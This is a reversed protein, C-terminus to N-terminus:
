RGVCRSGAAIMRRGKGARLVAGRGRGPAQPWAPAHAPRHKVLAGLRQHDGGPRGAVAHPRGPVTVRGPHVRPAPLFWAMFVALTDVKSFVAPSVPQTCSSRPASPWTAAPVGPAAGPTAPPTAAPAPRDPACGPAPTPARRPPTWGRARRRPGPERGGPHVLEHGGGIHVHQVCRQTPQPRHAPGGRFIWIGPVVGFEVVPVGDDAPQGTLHAPQPLARVPERVQISIAVRWRGVQARGGVPRVPGDRDVQRPHPRDDVADGGADVLQGPGAPGPGPCRPPAARGARPVGGAAPRAPGPTGPRRRGCPIARRM